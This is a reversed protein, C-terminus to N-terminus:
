NPRLRCISVQAINIKYGILSQMNVIAITPLHIQEDLEAAYLVSLRPAPRCLTNDPTEGCVFPWRLNM